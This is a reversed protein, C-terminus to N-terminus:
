AAEPSNALRDFREWEFPISAFPGLGRFGKHVTPCRTGGLREYFRCAGDNGKLVLLRVKRHGSKALRASMAFMLAKGVGRDRARESVHLNDLLLWGPRDDAFVCIFGTVTTEDEAVFVSMEPFPNRFREAWADRRDNLVPGDLFADDMIGRYSDRWSAAHIRAIAELDCLTGERIKM